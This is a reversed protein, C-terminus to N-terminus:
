FRAGIKFSLTNLNAVNYEAAVHLAAVKVVLGTCAQVGIMQEDHLEVANTKEHTATLYSSIGAYPALRAWREHLVFEKSIILDLGYTTLNLDSPGYMRVASARASTNWKKGPNNLLNYQVQAGYFGYNAGPSQTWYVGVDLKDTIGMRFTLGPFTLREDEKLWHTSDPHVFTDNWADKTDDFATKWQLLSLEYNRAGMPKADTLSRFYIVPGAEKTFERWAAQTLSPDLQFSCQSWRSNVHLDVDKDGNHSHQAGSTLSLGVAGVALLLKFTTM